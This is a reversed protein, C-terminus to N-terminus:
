RCSPNCRATACSPRPSRPRSFDDVARGHSDTPFVIGGLNSSDPNYQKGKGSDLKVGLLGLADVGFGVTGQTFGSAYNLMFGQGWEEQKSPAASGNRNDNNIYFNRLGLSAKSDEIFGDALATQALGAAALAVALGSHKLKQYQM